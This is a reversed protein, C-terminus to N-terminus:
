QLHVSRRLRLYLSRSLRFIARPCFHVQSRCAEAIRVASSFPAVLNAPHTLHREGADGPEAAANRSPSGRVPARHLRHRRKSLPDRLDSQRDLTPLLARGARALQFRPRRSWALGPAGYDDPRMLPGVRLPLEFANEMEAAIRELLDYYADDAIMESVDLSEDPNLVLRVCWRRDM